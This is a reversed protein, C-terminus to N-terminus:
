HSLLDQLPNDIRNDNNKKKNWKGPETVGLGYAARRATGLRGGFRVSPQPLRKTTVPKLQIALHHRQGPYGAGRRIGRLAAFGLSQQGVKQGGAM